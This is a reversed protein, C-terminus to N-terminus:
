GGSARLAARRSYVAELTRGTRRAAEAPTLARVLEDEEPTWPRGAAPPRTGRRKHAESMRRRTEESHPKGRRGAAMAEVVHPPRPKGRRAGALFAKLRRAEEVQYAAEWEPHDPYKEEIGRLSNRAHALPPRGGDPRTWRFLYVEQRKGEPAAARQADKVRLSWGKGDDNVGHVIVTVHGAPLWVPPAEPTRLDHRSGHPALPVEGARWDALAGHLVTLSLLSAAVALASLHILLAITTARPRMMAM